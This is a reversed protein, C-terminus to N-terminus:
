GKKNENKEDTWSFAMELRNVVPCDEKARGRGYRNTRSECSPDVSLQVHESGLSTDKPIVNSSM